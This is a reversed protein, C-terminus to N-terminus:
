RERDLRHRVLYPIGFEDVAMGWFRNGRIFYPTVTLEASDPGAAQVQAVPSGRADLVEWQGMPGIGTGAGFPPRSGLRRWIWLDGEESFVANGIAPQYDRPDTQELVMAEAASHSVGLTQEVRKIAGAIVSDVYAARWPIPVYELERQYLTDREVTVVSVTAVGEENTMAQWSVTAFRSGDQAIFFLPSRNASFINSLYYAGGGFPATISGAPKVFLTDRLHDELDVLM